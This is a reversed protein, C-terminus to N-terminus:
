CVAVKEALEERGYIVPALVFVAGLNKNIVLPKIVLLVSREMRSPITLSNHWDVDCPFFPKDSVDTRNYYSSNGRSLRSSFVM